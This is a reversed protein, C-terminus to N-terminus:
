EIEFGLNIRKWVMGGHMIYKVLGYDDHWYLFEIDDPTSRKDLDKFIYMRKDELREIGSLNTIDIKKYLDYFGFGSYKYSIHLYTRDTYKIITIFGRGGSSFNLTSNQYYIKGVHYRHSASSALPNCDTYDIIKQVIWSTDLDGAASQFILTDGEKYSDVWKIENDSLHTKFPCCGNILLAPIFLISFRILHKM